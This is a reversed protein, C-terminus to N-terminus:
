YIGAFRETAREFVHMILFYIIMNNSGFLDICDTAYPVLSQSITSFALSITALHTKYSYHNLHVHM